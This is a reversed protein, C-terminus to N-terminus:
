GGSPLATSRAVLVNIFKVINETPYEPGQKLWWTLIELLGSVVFNTALDTPLWPNAPERVQATRQATRYLEKRVASAGGSILPQWVSRRREICRCFMEISLIVDDHKMLPVSQSLVLQLEQAAIEDLLDDKNSYQRFFVPYSVKAQRTISRISINEVPQDNMLALLACQLAARSRMARPDSSRQAQEENFDVVM